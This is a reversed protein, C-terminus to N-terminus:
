RFDKTGCVRENINILKRPRVTERPTDSLCSRGNLVTTYPAISFLALCCLINTVATKWVSGTCSIPCTLSNSNGNHSSNLSMM